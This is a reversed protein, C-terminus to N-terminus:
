LRYKVPRTKLLWVYVNGSGLEPLVLRVARPSWQASMLSLGSRGVLHPSVMASSMSVEPEM